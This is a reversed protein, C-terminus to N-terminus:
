VNAESKGKFDTKHVERTSTQYNRLEFAIEAGDKWPTKFKQQLLLYLM